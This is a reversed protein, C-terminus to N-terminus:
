MPSPPPPDGSLKQLKAAACRGGRSPFDSPNEASPVLVLHVLLDGCLELAAAKRLLRNLQTSSRGKVAAGLWVASDVLVVTRACHRQRSRLLWRLWLLFAEGELVNIHAAHRKRVSLVHVFEDMSVDISHAQGLRRASEGSVTHGDLMVYAGQKESIRALRRAMATPVRAVSAGFGFSSSADTASVLPLFARRLDVQWYIGLLLGVSLEFLVENPIRTQKTDLPDRVFNYVQNYVSLKSRRLLDFYQQVGLHQHVQKPSAWRHFLLQLLSVVMALCRQPPVGWHTGNELQVGVCTASLEDDIDKSFNRKAGRQQLEADVRRAAALTHGPGADSFIMLDDTAAAFSLEFSMPTTAECSLISHEALGASRCISLLFEQAVYSSWSFGMPWTLSVPALSETELEQGPLMHEVIEARTMGGIDELENTTVRPRGMWLQLAQPLALQDFWCSADRKSCRFQQKPGCELFCLATPSALHRPKPPRCAAASVRSGNWVARQRGGPKGVAIVSGGAKAHSALGLQKARLQRVVLKVYEQRDESVVDEYVALGGPAEAFMRLEDEVLARAQPPLCPLPDCAGAQPLVDVRDAQLNGYRAGLPRDELIVWDPTLAEWTGAEPKQLRQEFDICRHVLRQVVDQQVVTRQLPGPTGKKVGFCWNLAGIVANAFTRLLFWRQTTWSKPKFELEKLQSLPFIDRQRGYVPQRSTCTTVLFAGLHGTQVVIARALRYLLWLRDPPVTLRQQARWRLWNARRTAAQRRSAASRYGVM